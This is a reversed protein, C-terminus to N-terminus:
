VKATSELSKGFVVNLQIKLMLEQCNKMWKEAVLSVVEKIRTLAKVLSRKVELLAM